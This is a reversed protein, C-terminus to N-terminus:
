SVLDGEGVRENIAALTLRPKARVLDFTSLTGLASRRVERLRALEIEHESRRDTRNLIFRAQSIQSRFSRLTHEDVEFVNEVACIALQRKADRLDAARKAVLYRGAVENKARSFELLHLNLKEDFRRLNQLGAVTGLGGFSSVVPRGITRLRTIAAPWLLSALRLLASSLCLLPRCLRLLAWGLCLLAWGM